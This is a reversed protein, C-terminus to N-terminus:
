CVLGQSLNIACFYMWTRKMEGPQPLQPNHPVLKWKLLFKGSYPSRKNSSDFYHFYKTNSQPVNMLVHELLKVYDKGVCSHIECQTLCGGCNDLDNIISSSIWDKWVKHVVTKKSRKSEPRVNKQNSFTIDYNPLRFDSRVLGWGASLIYFNNVGVNQAVVRYAQHAYLDKAMPLDTGNSFEVENPLTYNAITNYKLVVDRWTLNSGPITDDPKFYSYTSPKTGLAPQSVFKVERNQYKFTGGVKEGQCSLIIKIKSKEANASEPRTENFASKGSGGPSVNGKLIEQTEIPQHALPTHRSKM